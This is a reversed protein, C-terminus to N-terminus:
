VPLSSSFVTVCCTMKWVLDSCRNLTGFRLIHCVSLGVLRVERRNGLYRFFIIIIIIDTMERAGYRLSVASCMISLFTYM